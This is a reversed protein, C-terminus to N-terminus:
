LPAFVLDHADLDITIRGCRNQQLSRFAAYGKLLTEEWVWLPRHEVEYGDVFSRIQKLLGFPLDGSGLGAFFELAKAQTFIWSSMGEELLRARAGDQNEDVLPQSKRKRHLLARLVPSWGLVAANALHFVDHFRYDDAQSVNDTLPDGFGDGDLYRAMVVTRGDVVGETREVTLQRPLQEHSPYGSDFPAPFVREAPWRDSIKHLNKIAAAELTVGAETAARVM